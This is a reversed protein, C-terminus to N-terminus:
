QKPLMLAVFPLPPEQGPPLYAPVREGAPGLHRLYRHIAILDEDSMDRLNFWPM